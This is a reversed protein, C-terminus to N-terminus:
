GDGRPVQPEKSEMREKMHRVLNFESLFVNAVARLVTYAPIALVMGLVGNIKAGMLVVIFIELPHAKVSSSFIVPQFIYNDLMQAVAFVAVVKVMLPLIQTYFDSDLNSSITFVVGFVAGIIPGLYPIINLLGAFFGILLANNVGLLTLGITVVLTFGTMQILLGRFYRSLMNAVDSLAQRVQGEYQKPMLAALFNVFMGQEQLFFFTIFVVSAIGVGISGAASVANSFYKGISRPEFWDSFTARLQQEITTGSELLGYGELTQQLNLMPKELTRAIAGYDVDALNNVQEFMPPLFLWILLGVVLFFTLLTLLASTIPGARFKWIKLHKRFFGMLPQGIMSLVWAICVYAVIDTFFYLLSAIMLLSVLLGITRNTIKMEGKKEKKALFLRKKSGVNKQVGFSKV